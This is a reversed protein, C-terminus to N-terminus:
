GSLRRMLRVGQGPTMHPLCAKGIARTIAPLAAPDPYVMYMPRYEPRFKAKFALLSRFGYVPELVKGTWDLMRQLATPPGPRDAPPPDPRAPEM